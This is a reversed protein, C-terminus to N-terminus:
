TTRMNGEHQGRINDEHQVGTDCGLRQGPDTPGITPKRECVMYLTQFFFLLLLNFIVNVLTVLVADSHVPYAGERPGQGPSYRDWDADRVLVTQASRRGQLEALRVCVREQLSGEPLCGTAPQGQDTFM